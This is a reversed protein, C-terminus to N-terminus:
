LDSASMTGGGNKNFKGLNGLAQELIGIGNGGTKTKDDSLPIDLRDQEVEM